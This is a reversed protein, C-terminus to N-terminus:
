ARFLYDTQFSIPGGRGKEKGQINMKAPFWVGDVPAWTLSATTGSLLRDRDKILEAEVRVFELDHADIWLRLHFQMSKADDKSKPKIDTRPTCDFKFADRGNTVDMGVLVSDFYTPLLDLNIGLGISRSVLASIREQASTGTGSEILSNYKKEEAQAEDGTLPVGNRELMRLYPKGDLYLSEFRASEEVLVKGSGDTNKNEWLEIYTFQNAQSEDTWRHEIASQIFGNRHHTPLANQGIASSAAALISIGLLLVSSRM